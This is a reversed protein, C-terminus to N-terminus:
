FPEPGPIFVASKRMIGEMRGREAERRRGGEREGGVRRGGPYPQMTQQGGMSHGGM